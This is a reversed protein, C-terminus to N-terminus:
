RRSRRITVTAKHAAGYHKRALAECATRKRARKQKHCTKLAKKLKEARTMAVSRPKVAAAM